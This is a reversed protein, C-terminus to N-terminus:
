GKINGCNATVVVAICFEGESAEGMLSQFMIM